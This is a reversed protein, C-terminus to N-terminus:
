LVQIVEGQSLECLCVRDWGVPNVLDQSVTTIFTQMGLERLASLFRERNDGDLESALEDILMLPRVRVTSALVKAFAILVAFVLVKGEGRSLVHQVPRGSVQFQLDARHPGLTSFGRARDADWTTDLLEVLSNDIDWGPRYSFEVDLSCLDKLASELIPQAIELRQERLQHLAQGAEAMEASWAAREDTGAPVQARLMANRQSLARRYRGYVLQYTPEVHFMLWDLQRRRLDAGDSLLRQSDASVFVLPLHRALASATKVPEGELRFRAAGRRSKEIALTSPVGASNILDARVVLSSEDRSIVDQVSRARFSRGTGLLHIAELLSSKGSGNPGSFVILDADFSLDVSQLIRLNSATLSRLHM